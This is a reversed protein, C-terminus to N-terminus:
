RACDSRHAQSSPQRGVRRTFPHGSEVGWCMNVVCTEGRGEAPHVPPIM